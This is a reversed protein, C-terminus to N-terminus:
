AADGHDFDAVAIDCAQCYWLTVDAGLELGAARFELLTMTDHASDGPEHDFKFRERVIMPGGCKDCPHELSAM